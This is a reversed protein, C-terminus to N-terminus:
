VLKLQKLAARTKEPTEHLITQWGRQAGALINEPRDDIYLLEQGRRRTDREVVEYLKPDPKMSRHEYSLIYGDFDRFFPFRERIHEIALPNTNSFIYAPFKKNRLEAHLQIMAPIPTFIDAFFGGFETETGCFGTAACMAQYFATTSILGTEYSLLLAAHDAFMTATNLSARARAAIRPAAISYDFDVLVKGLDFILIPCPPM